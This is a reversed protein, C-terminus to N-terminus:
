KESETSITGEQQIIIGELPLFLNGSSDQQLQIAGSPITLQTEIKEKPIPPTSREVMRSNILHTTVSAMLILALVSKSTTWLNKPLRLWSRQGILILIGFSIILLGIILSKFFGLDYPELSDNFLNMGFFGTIFTPILFLAGILTLRNILQNSRKDELLSAYNHLKEIEGELDKVDRDINMVEQLQNYLEIGQIQSTVERFYIKNVFEIYARYLNRIRQVLKAEDVNSELKALRTLNAVEGSFRIVSARQILGIVCIQYYISEMHTFLPIK